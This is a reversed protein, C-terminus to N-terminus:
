PTQSIRTSMTCRERDDISLKATYSNISMNM